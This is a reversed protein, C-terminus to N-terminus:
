RKTRKKGYSTAKRKRKIANYQKQLSASRKKVSGGRRLDPRGEPHEFFQTGDPWVTGIDEKAPSSERWMQALWELSDAVRSEGKPPPPSPTAATSGVIENPTMRRPPQNRRGNSRSGNVSGTDDIYISNNNNNNNTSSAPSSRKNFGGKTRKRYQKFIEKVKDETRASLISMQMGKLDSVLKDNGALLAQGIAVKIISLAQLAYAAKGKNNNNNKQALKLTGM